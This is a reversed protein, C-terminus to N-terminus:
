IFVTINEQNFKTVENKVEYKNQFNEKTLQLYDLILSDKIANAFNINSEEIESYTADISYLNAEMYDSIVMMQHHQYLVLM